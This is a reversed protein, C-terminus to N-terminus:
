LAGNERVSNCLLCVEWVSRVTPFIPRPDRDGEDFHVPLWNDLWRATSLNKLSDDVYVNLRDRPFGLYAGTNPKFEGPCKAKIQDNIAIAVQQAWIPPSNTFLTVDWGMHTLEHIDQADRQFEVSGLVDALHDILSRDYVKRDFDSTDVGFVNTLGRATHGHALYLIRNTETPNKCEPMKARVYEVCNAKVHELLLKDRVLVGDIDLLLTKSAM